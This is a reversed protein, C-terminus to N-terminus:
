EFDHAFKKRSLYSKGCRKKPFVLFMCAYLITKEIGTHKRNERFTDTSFGIQPAFTDGWKGEV